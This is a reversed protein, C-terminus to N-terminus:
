WLLAFFVPALVVILFIVLLALMTFRVVRTVNRAVVEIYPGMWRPKAVAWALGFLFYVFLTGFFATGGARIAWGLPARPWELPARPPPQFWLTGLFWGMVPLFLLSFFGLVIRGLPDRPFLGDLNRDSM